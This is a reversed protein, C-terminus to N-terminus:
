RLARSRSASPLTASQSIPRVFDRMSSYSSFSMQMKPGSSDGGAIPACVSCAMNRPTSTLSWRSTGRSPKRIAALAGAGASFGNMRVESKAGGAVLGVGDVLEHCPRFRPLFCWVSSPTVPEPLVNVIALTMSCSAAASAPARAWCSAPRGARSALELLEEGLVGDLVEDGVVVVVLGLRVDRAGVGVDGLVRVDVLLDVLQAVGGGARQEVRLSTIMTADTDQM